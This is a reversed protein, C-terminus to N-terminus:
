KVLTRGSPSKIQQTFNGVRCKETYDILKPSGEIPIEEQTEQNISFEELTSSHCSAYKFNIHSEKSNRAENENIMRGEEIQPSNKQILSQEYQADRQTATIPNPYQNGNYKLLEFYDKMEDCQHIIPKEIDGELSLKFQQVEFHTGQKQHREQYKLNSIYKARQQESDICSRLYKHCINNKAALLKKLGNSGVQQSNKPIEHQGMKPMPSTNHNLSTHNIKELGFTQLIGIRCSQLESVNCCSGKASNNGYIALNQADFKLQKENSLSCINHGQKDAYVEISEILQNERQKFGSEKLDCESSHM